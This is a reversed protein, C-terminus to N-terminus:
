YSITSKSCKLISKIQNYTCGDNHLQFIKESLIFSKRDSPNNPSEYHAVKDQHPILKQYKPTLHGTKEAEVLVAVKRKIEERIGNIYTECKKYKRCVAINSAGALVELIMQQKLVSLMSIAKNVLKTQKIFTEEIEKDLEPQYSPEYDQRITEETDSNQLVEMPEFGLHFANRAIARTQYAKAVNAKITIFLYGKFDEYDFRPVKNENMKSFVSIVSDNIIINKEMDNLGFSKIMTGLLYETKILLQEPTVGIIPNIDISPSKDEKM